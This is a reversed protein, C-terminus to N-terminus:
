KYVIKEILLQFYLRMFEVDSGCGFIHVALQTVGLIFDFSAVTTWRWAKNDLIWECMYIHLSFVHRVMQM